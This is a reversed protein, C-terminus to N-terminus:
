AAAGTQVPNIVTQLITKLWDIYGNMFNELGAPTYKTLWDAHNTKILLVSGGIFAAALILLILLAAFYSRAFHKRNEMADDRSLAHIVLFIWGIVPIFYLLEYGIYGWAGIYTPAIKHGKYKAM